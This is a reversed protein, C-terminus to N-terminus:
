CGCHWYLNGSASAVAISFFLEWALKFIDGVDVIAGNAFNFRLVHTCMSVAHIDIGVSHGSAISVVCIMVTVNSIVVVTM